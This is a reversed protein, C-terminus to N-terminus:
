CRQTWPEIGAMLSGSLLRTNVQENFRSNFTGVVCAHSTVLPDTPQWSLTDVKDSSSSDLYRLTTSYLRVETWQTDSAYFGSGEDRLTKSPGIAVTSRHPCLLLM